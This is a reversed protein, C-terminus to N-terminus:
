NNSVNITRMGFKKEVQDYYEEKRERYSVYEQLNGEDIAKGYEIEYDCTCNIDEGPKEFHQPAQTQLGGVDFYADAGMVVKGDAEEHHVRPEDSIGTYRWVKYIDNGNEEHHRAMQLKAESKYFNTETRAITKARGSSLKFNKQLDRMLQHKTRGQKIAKTIQKALRKDLTRTNAKLVRNFQVLKKRKAISNKINRNIQSNTLMVRNNNMKTVSLYEYYTWVDKMTDESTKEIMLGNKIWLAAIFPTIRSLEGSVEKENELNGDDDYKAVKQVEEIESELDKYTKRYERNIDRFLQTQQNRTLNNLIKNTM